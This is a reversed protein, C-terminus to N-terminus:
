NDQAGQEIWLAFLKLEDDKWKPVPMGPPPMVIKSEGVPYTQNLVNLLGSEDPKGPIIYTGVTGLIDDKNEYYVQNATAKANGGDRKHCAACSRTFKPMLDNSFSVVKTETEETTKTEKKECGTYLFLTALCIMCFIFTINRM